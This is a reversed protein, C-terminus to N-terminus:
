TIPRKIPKHSKISYKKSDVSRYLVFYILKTTPNMQIDKTTLIVCSIDTLDSYNVHIRNIQLTNDRYDLNQRM